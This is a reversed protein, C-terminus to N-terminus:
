DSHGTITRDLSINGKSTNKTPIFVQYQQDESAPALSRLFYYISATLALVSAVGIGVGILLISKNSPTPHIADSTKNDSLAVSRDGWVFSITDQESLLVPLKQTASKALQTSTAKQRPLSSHQTQQYNIALPQLAELVEEVSQYRDKFHYRVMKNLVCALEASVNAQHRWIIEGTDSDELLQRPHLGTLAQIAIIGLAYIDSNPRQLGRVQEAPMYGPTGIATTAAIGKTFTTNTKGQITVVQTWAQKVSGFDILVLRDDQKRRILNSPKVDRHILGQCHVVELIGLVEQLMQVVFRESWRFGRQLETSLPCGEIFEQVLYFEFNEEFHDLLQPVRDYHALKKLAEAESTLLRKLAQLSEPHNSIPLLHKVVYIPCDPQWTDKALYTQCFGGASLLQIIQYRGQLLQGLM